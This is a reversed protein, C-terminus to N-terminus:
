ILWFYVMSCNFRFLLVLSRFQLWNSITILGNMPSEHLWNAVTGSSTFWQHYVTMNAIATWQICELLLYASWSLCDNASLGGACVGSSSVGPVTFWLFLPESSIEFKYITNLSGSNWKLECNLDCNHAINHLRVVPRDSSALSPWCDPWSLPPWSTTLCPKVLYLCFMILYTFYRNKIWDTTGINSEM